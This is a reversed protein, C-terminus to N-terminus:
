VDHHDGGAGHRRVWKLLWCRVELTQTIENYKMNRCLTMVGSGKQMRAMVELTEM